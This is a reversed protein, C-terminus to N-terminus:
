GLHRLFVLLVDHGEDLAWRLSVSEGEATQLEFDPAEDGVGFM